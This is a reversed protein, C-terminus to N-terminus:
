IRSSRKLEGKNLQEGFAKNPDAVAKHNIPNSVLVSQGTLVQVEALNQTWHLRSIQRQAVVNEPAAKARM